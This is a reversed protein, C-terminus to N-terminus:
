EELMRKAEEYWNNIVQISNEIQKTSARNKERNLIEAKTKEINSYILQYYKKADEKELMEAIKITELHLGIIKDVNLIQRSYYDKLHEYIQEEPVLKEKALKYMEGNKYSYYKNQNFPFVICIILIIMFLSLIILEIKTNIKKIDTQVVLGMLSFGLYLNILFSMDFDMLSHLHLTLIAFIIGLKKQEQNKIVYYLFCILVAIYM